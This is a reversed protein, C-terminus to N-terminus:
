NYLAFISGSGFVVNQVQLPNYGKQLPVSSVVGGGPFTVTADVDESCLLAHCTSFAVGSSIQVAVVAPRSSDSTSM